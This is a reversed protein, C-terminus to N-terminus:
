DVNAFYIDESIENKINTEINYKYYLDYDDYLIYEDNTLHFYVRKNSIKEKTKINEVPDYYYYSYLDLFDSVKICYFLKGNDNMSYDSFGSFDESSNFTDIITDNGSSIEVVHLEEKIMGNELFSRKYYRYKENSDIDDDYSIANKEISNILVYYRVTRFCILLCGLIIIFIFLKKRMNNKTEIDSKTFFIVLPYIFLFSIVIPIPLFSISRIIISNLLYPKFTLFLSLFVIIPYIIFPLLLKTKKYSPLEKKILIFLYYCSLVFFIVFLFSFMNFLSELCFPGCSPALFSLGVCLILTIVTKIIYSIYNNKIGNSKM